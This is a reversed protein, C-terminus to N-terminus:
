KKEVTVVTENRAKTNFVHLKGDNSLVHIEFTATDGFRHRGTFLELAYLEAAHEPAERYWNPLDPDRHTVLEGEPKDEVAPCWVKKARWPENVDKEPTKPQEEHDFRRDRLLERMMIFHSVTRVQDSVRMPTLYLPDRTYPQSRPIDNVLDFLCKKPAVELM